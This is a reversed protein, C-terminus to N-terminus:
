GRTPGPQLRRAAAHEPLLRMILAPIDAPAASHLVAGLEVAVKPMGYVVSSDRDQALTLGGASRIELLGRAGDAGMGTLLAGVARPGAVAAVSRFLVDVSPCHRNVPAQHTYRVCWGGANQIVLHTDGRAILARGPVLPEGDGAEAVAIRSLRDLRQAFSRTFGAPMHQVIVIPPFDEPVRDLLEEIARTGGTSAGLAVLYRQPLLGTARFEPPAATAAPAAPVPRALTVVTRSRQALERALAALDPTRPVAPKRFVELAGRQVAQVARAAGAPSDEATVLVPVPYHARLKDLLELASSRRLALDLVILAPHLALLQARVQPLDSPTHAARVDPCRDLAAALPPGFRPDDDIVLVRIPLDSIM